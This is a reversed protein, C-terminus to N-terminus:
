FAGRIRFALRVQECPWPDRCLACVKPVADCANDPVHLQFAMTALYYLRALDPAQALARMPRPPEQILEAPM